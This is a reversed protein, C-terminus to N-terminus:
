MKFGCEDSNMWRDQRIWCGPAHSGQMHHMCWVPGVASECNAGVGVGSRRTCKSCVTNNIDFNDVRAQVHQWAEATLYGCLENLKARGDAGLALSKDTFAVDCMQVACGNRVAATPGHCGWHRCDVFPQHPRTQEAKHASMARADSVRHCRHGGRYYCFRPAVYYGCSKGGNGGDYCADASSSFSSVLGYRCRPQGTTAWASDVRVALLTKGMGAWRACACPPYCKLIALAGHTHVTFIIIAEGTCQYFTSHFLISSRFWVRVMDSVIVM